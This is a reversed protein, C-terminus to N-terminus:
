QIIDAGSRKRGFLRRRFNKYEIPWSFVCWNLYNKFRDMSTTNSAKIAVTTGKVRYVHKINPSTYIDEFLTQKVGPWDSDHFSIVGGENLKPFWDKVDRKVSDYDHAGDVFLVDIKEPVDNVADWSLKVLPKVLGSLNYRKVNDEFDKFTPAVTYGAGMDETRGIHPDISYIKVGDGDLSGRGFFVTSKGKWSGIEVIVNPKKANKALNYFLLGEEGSLWGEVDNRIKEIEDKQM